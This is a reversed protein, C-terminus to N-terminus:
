VPLATSSLIAIGTPVVGLLVFAPLICLGLPLLMRSELRAARAAADARARRRHEDAASRLLAVVPVGAASAFGLVEDVDASRPDIGALGCAGAVSRTARDISTDGALATATLELAIGPTADQTRAWRILRRNWRLGLAILSGGGLLCVIGPVTAFVALVDFGLILGMLLGVLPLALVIRSTAVPGALATEVERASQALDRLVEATRQLTPALAAGTETAVAWIAALVSWASREDPASSAAVAVIRAPLDQASELGDVVEPVGGTAAAHRWASAAPIGAGTLVALRQVVGAVREIGTM